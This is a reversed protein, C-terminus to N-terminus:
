LGLDWHKHEAVTFRMEPLDCSISLINSHPPHYMYQLFSTNTSHDRLLTSQVYVRLPSGTNGVSTTSVMSGLPRVSMFSSLCRLRLGPVSAPVKYRSRYIQSPPLVSLQSEPVTVM